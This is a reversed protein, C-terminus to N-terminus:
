GFASRQMIGESMSALRGMIFQEQAGAHATARVSVEDRRHTAPTSRSPRSHWWASLGLLWPSGSGGLSAPLSVVLAVRCGTSAVNLRTHAIWVRVPERWKSMGM